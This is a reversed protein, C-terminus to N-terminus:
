VNRHSRLFEQGKQIVKKSTRNKGSPKILNASIGSNNKTELSLTTFGYKESPTIKVTTQLVDGPFGDSAM